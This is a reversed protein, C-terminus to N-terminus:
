RRVKTRTDGAAGTAAKMQEPTVTELMVRVLFPYEVESVRYDCAGCVVFDGAGHMGPVRELTLLGCESSPCPMPLLHRARGHGLGRRIQHHLDAMEVLVEDPIRWEWMQAYPPPVEDAPVWRGVGCIWDVRPALYDLSSQLVAAERRQRVGAPSIPRVPPTEGRYDAVMDHLSWVLDVIRAAQDSAWESPHGFERLGGTRGGRDTVMPLPLRDRLQVWDVLLDALLAGLRPGTIRRRPWWRPVDTTWCCDTM